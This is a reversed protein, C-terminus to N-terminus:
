KGFAEREFAAFQIELQWQLRAKTNQNLYARCAESLAGGPTQGRFEPILTRGTGNSWIGRGDVFAHELSNRAMAKLEGYTAHQETVARMYENTMDSRAVGEDDTCIALPVGNNMYTRFPHQTGRVGLIGDNSSLCIEVLVNRDRMMRLLEYPAHEYMVAVGHGIREAHGLEVSARIHCCLSDPPILGYAFEGAHLSIHARTYLPRLANIMAMGDDFRAMQVPDDEPQVLNFGVVRPDMEAMEYGALIQAFLSPLAAGRGVQYLYRITVGCPGGNASGATCGLVQRLRREASDLLRMGVRISDRLGRALLSDRMAPYDNRWAIKQGLSSVAGTDPTIMLELYGLGNADARRVVEALMDGTRGWGAYGFKGFTNFFHDHGSEGSLQWNRMSWANIIARQMSANFRATAAPITGTPRCSTAALTATDICIGSEAAWALLSEAYVAGSLHNHLDAGKPMRVLLARLALPDERISDLYRAVRTEAAGPAQAQAANMAALLVAVAMVALLLPRGTARNPTQNNDHM